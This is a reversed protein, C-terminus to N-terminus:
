RPIKQKIECLNAWTYFEFLYLSIGLKELLLFVREILTFIPRLNTWESSSNSFRFLMLNIKSDEPRKFSQLIHNPDVHNIVDDNIKM